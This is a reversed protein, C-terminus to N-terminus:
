SVELSGRWWPQCREGAGKVREEASRKSANLVEVVMMEGKGESVNCEVATSAGWHNAPAQQAGLVRALHMAGRPTPYAYAVM